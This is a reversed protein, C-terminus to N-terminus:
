RSCAPLRRPLFVSISGSDSRILAEPITKIYRAATIEALIFPKKNDVIATSLNTTLICITIKLRGEM